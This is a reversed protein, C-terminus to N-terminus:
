LFSTFHINDLKKTFFRFLFYYLLFYLFYLLFKFSLVFFSLLDVPILRFSGVRIIRTGVPSAIVVICARVVWGRIAIVVVRGVAVIVDTETDWELVIELNYIKRFIYLSLILILSIKGM